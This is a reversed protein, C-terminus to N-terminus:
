IIWSYQGASLNKVVIIDFKGARADWAADFGVRKEMDNTIGEDPLAWGAELRIKGSLSLYNKQAFSSDPIDWRDIGCYVVM